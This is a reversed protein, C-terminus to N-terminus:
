KFQNFDSILKNLIPMKILFVRNLLAYNTYWNIQLKKFLLKLTISVKNLHPYESCFKYLIAEISDFEM